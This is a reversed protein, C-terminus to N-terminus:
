AQVAKSKATAAARTATMARQRLLCLYLTDLFSSFAIEVDKGKEVKRRYALTHKPIDLLCTPLNGNEDAYCRVACIDLDLRM